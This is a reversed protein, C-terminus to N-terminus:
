HSGRGRGRPLGAHGRRGLRGLAQADVRRVRRRAGARRRRARRRQGAQLLQGRPGIERGVGM